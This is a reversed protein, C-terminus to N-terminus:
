DKDRLLSEPLAVLESGSGKPQWVVRGDDLLRVITGSMTGRLTKIRDGPKWRYSESLSNVMEEM